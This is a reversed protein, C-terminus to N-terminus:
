ADKLWLVIKGSVLKGDAWQLRGERENLKHFKRVFPHRLLMFFHRIFAADIVLTAECRKLRTGAASSLANVYLDLKAQTSILPTCLTVRSFGGSLTKKIALKIDAERESRRRGVFFAKGAHLRVEGRQGIALLLGSQRHFFVASFVLIAVLVHRLYDYGPVCLQDYGARCTALIAKGLVHFTVVGILVGVNRGVFRRLAFVQWCSVSFVATVLATLIYLVAVM